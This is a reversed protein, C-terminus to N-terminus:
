YNKKQKFRQAHGRKVEGVLPESKGESILEKAQSKVQATHRAMDTALVLTLNRNMQLKESHAKDRIGM